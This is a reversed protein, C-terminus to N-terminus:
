PKPHSSVVQECAAFCTTFRAMDLQTIGCARFTQEWTAAVQSRMEEMLDTADQVTLGFRGCHSLANELTAVRGAAGVGLALRRDLSVQPKPVVDYLPSLAWGQGDHLFGHNRMHDDNNNCLINFVMRRFLEVMSHRSMAAGAVRMQDALEAYSSQHFVMEHLDLFTLGSIFPVRVECGLEEDQYRDFRRILYVDRDLVRVVDVPPVDLGIQGALTMTAYELRPVSYPDDKREFKAIWRAGDAWTTTAKPRAGGLSSGRKIFRRHRQELGLRTPHSEDLEEAAQVLGPLDLEEGDIAEAVDGAWPAVRAPGALTPGFALAGVRQDHSAVLYDFETLPRGAAERDLVHRGWGDPAADRLGNFLPFDEATVAPADEAQWRNVPLPLTHPDLAIADNRKLYHNGYWFQAFSQRGDDTMEVLGAPVFRGQRHLFVYARRTDAM